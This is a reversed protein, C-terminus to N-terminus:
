NGGRDSLNNPAMGPGGVRLLAELGGGVARLVDAAGSAVVRGQALVVGHDAIRDFQALDHTVWLVPVGDASASCVLEELERTAPEDLSATPEDAVLVQPGVLLARGLCVRQAEGGSLTAADQDLLAADLGVRELMRVHRDRDAVGSHALNDAVTGALVTPRQFVMGVARRLALVDLGMVDAARFRVTGASPDLLRNCLRTVTSKGSGSRGLVVTVGSAPVRVNLGQLVSAEGFRVHVGEFGFV